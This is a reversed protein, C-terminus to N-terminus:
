WRMVGLLIKTDSEKRPSPCRCQASAADIVAVFETLLARRGEHFTTSTM